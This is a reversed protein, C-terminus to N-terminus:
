YIEILAEQSFPTCNDITPSQMMKEITQANITVLIAGTPAITARKKPMYWAQCIRVFDPTSHTHPFIFHPLNSDWVGIDDSQDLYKDELWCYLEFLKIDSLTEHIKHDKDALPIHHFDVPPHLLMSVLQKNGKNNLDM